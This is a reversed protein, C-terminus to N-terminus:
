RSKPICRIARGFQEGSTRSSWVSTRTPQADSRASTRGPSCRHVAVPQPAKPLEDLGNAEIHDHTRMDGTRLRPRM